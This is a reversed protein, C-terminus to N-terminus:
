DLHPGAVTYSLYFCKDPVREVGQGDSWRAMAFINVCGIYVGCRVACM